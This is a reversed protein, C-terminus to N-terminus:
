SGGGPPASPEGPAVYSRRARATLGQPKLRVSLQHLQGDAEPADFGILYQRHLEDAVQAFVPGLQETGTLAFYGGGSEAALERLGPDPEPDGMTPGPRSGAPAMRSRMGIAYVMFEESQARQVVDVLTPGRRQFRGRGLGTDKGDSLVLVVRRGDVAALQTMAADVASWLPTAGGPELDLWLTRILDDADNTFTRSIHIRSGFSGVRAQDEPLLRTFMQVASQRLVALNGEMSGSMDLMVIISIPQIRNDFLTIPQPRGNDLIEFNEETLDTVLHGDAGMGTVYVPVTEAASRFVQQQADATSRFGPQQADTTPRFGPQQASLATGVGAAVTLVQATRRVATTM